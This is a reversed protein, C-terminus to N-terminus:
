ITSLAGPVYFDGKMVLVVYAYKDPASAISHDNASEEMVDLHTGLHSLCLSLIDLADM